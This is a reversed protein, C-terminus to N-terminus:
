SGPLEKSPQASQRIFAWYTKSKGFYKYDKKKRFHIWFMRLLFHPLLPQRELPPLPM